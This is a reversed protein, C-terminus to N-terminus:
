GTEPAASYLFVYNGARGRLQLGGGRELQFVITLVRAGRAALNVLLGTFRAEAEPLLFAVVVTFAQAPHGPCLPAPDFGPSTFDAALFRARDGVGCRQAAAASREVLIPDLEVGVAAAADYQQCAAVCFRGDGSGLDLLRDEPGVTALELAQMVVSPETALYPAILPGSTAGDEAM